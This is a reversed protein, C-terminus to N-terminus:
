KYKYKAAVADAISHLENNVKNNAASYDKLKTVLENAYDLLNARSKVMANLVTDVGEETVETRFCKNAWSRAGPLTNLPIRFVAMARPPAFGYMEVVSSADMPEPLTINDPLKLPSPKLYGNMKQGDHWGQFVVEGLVPHNLTRKFDNASM